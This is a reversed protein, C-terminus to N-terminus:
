QMDFIESIKVIEEVGLDQPRLDPQIGIGKLKEAVKEKSTSRIDVTDGSKISDRQTKTRASIRTKKLDADSDAVLNNLVTKRPQQFLVRVAKYYREKKVELRDGLVKLRILSSEVEPPPSFDKRSVLSLIEPDAWFQVSAALKNMGNSTALARLTGRGRVPNMQPPKAVLREAVEKQIIFVCREPKNQLEGIIRLLYGTLYYPINGILKYTLPQLNSTITPLVKLVDGCVIEVNGRFGLVQLRSVLEPDKEIGIIKIKESRNKLENTLVGRGPGIEIVTEGDKLDLAAVEKELIVKNKLFHQGLKQRM